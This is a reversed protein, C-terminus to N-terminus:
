RRSRLIQSIRGKTLGTVEAVQVPRVVKKSARILEDRKAKTEDAIREAREIEDQLAAIEWAQDPPPPLPDRRVITPSPRGGLRRSRWFNLALAEAMEPTDADVTILASRDRRMALTFREANGIRQESYDPVGEISIRAIGPKSKRRSM